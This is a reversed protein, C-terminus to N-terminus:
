TMKAQLTRLFGAVGYAALMALFPISPMHYRDGTVTISHIAIFYAWLM